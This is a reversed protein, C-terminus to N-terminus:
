HGWTRRYNQMIEQVHANRDAAAQEPRVTELMQNLLEEAMAETDALTRDLYWRVDDLDLLNPYSEQIKKFLYIKEEVTWDNADQSPQIQPLEQASSQRTSTSLRSQSLPIYVHRLSLLSRRKQEQIAMMMLEEDQKLKAKIEEQRKLREQRIHYEQNRRDEEKELMDPGAEVVEKLENLIGELEERKQQKIRRYKRQPATDKDEEEEEEVDPQQRQARLLPRYLPGIWGLIRMLLEITSITFSARFGYKDGGLWWASALVHFLMPIALSAIDKAMQDHKKIEKKRQSRSLKRIHHIISNIKSFYYSLLDNHEYFFKNQEEIRPAKPAAVLLRELRTLLKLLTRVPGPQMYDFYFPREHWKRGKGSWADHGMLQLAKRLGSPDLHATLDDEQPRQTIESGKYGKPYRARFRALDQAFGDESFDFDSLDEDDSSLENIHGLTIVAKDDGQVDRASVEVEPQGLEPSGNGDGELVPGPHESNHVRGTQSLQALKSGRQPIHVEIRRARVPLGESASVGSRRTSPKQCPTMPVDWIDAQSQAEGSGHQAIGDNSPGADAEHEKEHDTVPIPSSKGRGSTGTTDDDNELPKQLGEKENHNSQVGTNIMASELVVESKQSGTILNNLQSNAPESHRQHEGRGKKKFAANVRSVLGPPVADEPSSTRSPKGSVVKRSPLRVLPSAPTPYLHADRSTALPETKRRKSPSFHLSLDDGSKKNWNRRHDLSRINPDISRSPSIVHPIEDENSDINEPSPGPSHQQIQEADKIPSKAPIRVGSRTEVM